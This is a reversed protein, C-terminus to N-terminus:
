KYFSPLPDPLEFLSLDIGANNEVDSIQYTARVGRLVSVEWRFPVRVDDVKRYDSYDIRSPFSGVATDTYYVIRSLLGSDRDFYVNVTPLHETRGTLVTAPRGDVAEAGNVRLNSVLDRLHLPLNLTDELRAADRRWGFMIRVPGSGERMWGADSNYVGYARPSNGLHSVSFSKTYRKSPRLSYIEIPLTVAPRGPRTATLEGRESRSRIKELASAGGLSAVYRDLVDEVTPLSEDADAPRSEAVLFEAPESPDRFVESWEPEASASPSGRHCSYCTVRNQGGFYNRNMEAVMRFMERATDKRPLGEVARNEAHCFACDVGLMESALQMTPILQSYPMGKLVQINEYVQETTKDSPEAYALGAAQQAPVALPIAINGVLISLITIRRLIVKQNM